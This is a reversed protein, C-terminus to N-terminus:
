PLRRPLPRARRRPLGALSLYRATITFSTAPWAGSICGSASRGIPISCPRATPPPSSGCIPSQTRRTDAPSCSKPPSLTMATIASTAQSSFWPTTARWAPLAFRGGAFLRNASYHNAAVTQSYGFRLVQAWRPALDRPGPVRGVAMARAVHPDDHAITNADASRDNWPDEPM